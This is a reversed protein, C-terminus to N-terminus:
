SHALDKAPCFTDSLRQFYNNTATAIVKGNLNLFTATIQFGAVALGGTPQNYQCFDNWSFTYNSTGSKTAPVSITVKSQYTSGSTYDNGYARSDDAFDLVISKIAASANKWTVTAVTRGTATCKWGGNGYCYTDYTGVPSTSLEATYLGTATGAAVPGSVTTLAILLAAVITLPRRM